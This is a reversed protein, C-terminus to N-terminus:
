PRSSRPPVSTAKLHARADDISACLKGYRAASTALIRQLQLQRMTDDGAIVAIPRRAVDFSSMMKTLAQETKPGVVPPAQSLDFIMGRLQSDQALRAFHGIMEEACHAGEAMSLDRRQWVRCVAVGQDVDFSYNPGSAVQSMQLDLRYCGISAARRQDRATV